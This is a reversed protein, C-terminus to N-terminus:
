PKFVRIASRIMESLATFLISFLGNILNYITPWLAILQKKIQGQITMNEQYPDLPM